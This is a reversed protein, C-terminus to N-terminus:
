GHFKKGKRFEEGGIFFFNGILTSYTMQAEFIKNLQEKAVRLQGNYDDKMGREVELEYKVFDLQSGMSRNMKELGLLREGLKETTERLIEQDEM